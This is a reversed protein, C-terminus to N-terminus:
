NMDITSRRRRRVGHLVCLGMLGWVSPEPIEVASMSLSYFQIEDDAGNIRVYYDGGDSLEYGFMTEVGGRAMADIHELLVGQEDFLDFSLDSMTQMDIVYEPKTDSRIARSYEFGAPTLAINLMSEGEVSFRYFDRDSDDDISVFDIDEKYLLDSKGRLGDTGISWVVGDTLLGVDTAQDLSDNGGNKELVDGYLRQAMFIDDMQPGFFNTPRYIEMVALTDKSMAHRIGIGHGIEHQVTNIFATSNSSNIYPLSPDYVKWRSDHNANIFMDGNDPYYNYAYPGGSDGYHTGGIRIDARVGLVGAPGGSGHKDHTANAHYNFTLGTLEEWRDFSLQFIKFWERDRLDGKDATGVNFHEDMLSILDSQRKPQGSRNTETGDPIISWTLTVPTGHAWGVYGDTATRSWRDLESFDKYVGHVQGAHFLGIVGAMVGIVHIKM